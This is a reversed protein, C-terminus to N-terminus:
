TQPTKRNSEIMDFDYSYFLISINYINLLKPRIRTACISPFIKYIIKTMLDYGIM